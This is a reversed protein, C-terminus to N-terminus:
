ITDLGSTFKLEGDREGLALNLAEVKEEIVNIRINDLLKTFTVPLAEVSLSQCGVVSSALVTFAGLM